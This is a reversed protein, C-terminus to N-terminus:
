SEGGEAQIAAREEAQDAAAQAELRNIWEQFGDRAKLSEALDLDKRMEKGAIKKMESKIAHFDIAFENVLKRILKEIEKQLEDRTPGTGMPERDPADVRKIDAIWIAFSKMLAAAKPGTLEKRISVGTVEKMKKRWVEEKVGLKELEACLGFVTIRTHQDIQWGDEDTTAVPQPEEIVEAEIAPVNQNVATPKVDIVVGTEGDIVAGLEEPLMPPGGFVDSCHWKAGNSLARAFLMNRPYKEWSHRNSGTTLGARKADTMSFISTPVLAKGSEFFAIECQESTLEVLKFNYKGSRKIAAAMLTASLTPKEQIIHIGNMSAMPGFGLEAGALIKVLCQSADRADKFYGSRAFVQGLRMYDDFSRLEIAAAQAGAPKITALAQSM